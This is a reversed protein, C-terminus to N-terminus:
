DVGYDCQVSASVVAVYRHASLLENAVTDRDLPEDNRFITTGDMFVPIQEPLPQGAELWSHLLAM